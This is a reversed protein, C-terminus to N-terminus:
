RKRRWRVRRRSIKPLKAIWTKPNFFVLISLILGSIFGVFSRIASRVDPVYQNVVTGTWTSFVEHFNETLRSFSRRHHDEIVITPGRETSAALFVNIKIISKM